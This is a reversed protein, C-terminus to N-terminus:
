LLSLSSLSVNGKCVSLVCLVSPTNKKLWPNTLFVYVSPTNKKLDKYRIFNQLLQTHLVLNLLIRFIVVLYQSYRRNNGIISSDKTFIWYFELFIWWYPGMNQTNKTWICSSHWFHRRNFHCWKKHWIIQYLLHCWKKHTEFIIVLILNSYPLDCINRLKKHM